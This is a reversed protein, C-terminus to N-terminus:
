VKEGKVRELVDEKLFLRDRPMEKVPTLKGRKILDFVNQRTCDLIRAVEATNILETDIFDLLEKRSEFHYKSM